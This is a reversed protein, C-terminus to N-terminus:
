ATVFLDHTSSCLEYNTTLLQPRYKFFKFDNNTSLLNLDDYVM